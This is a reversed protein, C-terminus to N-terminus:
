GPVNPSASTPSCVTAGPAPWRSCRRRLSRTMSTSTASTRACCPAPRVTRDVFRVLEDRPTVSGAPNHPTCIWVMRIKSWDSIRDVTFVFDGDLAVPMGVAGALRAGREYIPYGPTPWAVVDGAAADVFALPTSFVAEKSGSTPLVQTEPDVGVGFRRQVYEAVATRMAPLGRATPYQSIEPIADRVAERIFAPTPERPDGISFDILEEGAERMSRVRNQIEGITYSGLQALVPNRRM